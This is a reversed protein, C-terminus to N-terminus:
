EDMFIMRVGGPLEESFAALLARANQNYEVRTVYFAVERSSTAILPGDIQMRAVCVWDPPLQPFWHDYIMVLRVDQERTLNDMWMPSGNHTRERLAEASALGWLDLVYHPNHFSVWGLDHVAVPARYYDVVFRHMQHQQRYINTAALPTVIINAYYASGFVVSLGLIVWGARRPQDETRALWSGNLYVLLLLGAGLVYVEYRDLWGVQGFLLHLGIVAFGVTSLSRDASASKRYANLGLLLFLVLLPIGQFRGLNVLLNNFVAAPLSGPTQGFGYGLDAGPSLFGAKANVSSPLWGLGQGHLFLAFGGLGLGIGVAAMGAARWQRRYGLFALAPVALSLCEYRVLPALVIVAPLWFDVRDNELLRLLGLIIAACLLVQLSHEMGTLALGVLNTAPILAAALAARLWLRRAVPIDPWWRAESIKIIQTYVFLTAAAALTNLGLPLFAFGPLWALGALLFPWLISSAPASAEGLNIGYHGGAIREALALHIYPDDLSYSYAGGTLVLIAVLEVVFLAALLGYPAATYRWQRSVARDAQM